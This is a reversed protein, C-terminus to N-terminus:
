FTLVINERLFILKFVVEQGFFRAVAQSYFKQQNFYRQKWFELKDHEFPTTKYDAVVIRGDVKYIIDIVGYITRTSEELVFPVERGLIESSKIESFIKSALFGTLLKGVEQLITSSVKGRLRRLIGDLEQPNVKGLDVRALIEHCLLGAQKQDEFFLVEEPFFEVKEIVRGEELKDLRSPSTLVEEALFKEYREQRGKWIRHLREPDIKPFAKEQSRIEQSVPLADRSSTIRVNFRAGDIRSPKEELNPIAEKLMAYFSDKDVKQRKIGCLLVGQKARTIAVYFLRRYEARLKRKEKERLSLYEMSKSRRFSMGIQNRVWDYIFTRERREGPSGEINPIIVFPFELGKSRHISMVQVVDMTQDFLSYEEEERELLIRERLEEAFYKLSAGEQSFKEALQILKQINALPQQTPYFLATIELLSFEELILKIIESLTTSRSKEHLRRLKEFIGEGTPNIRCYNFTGFRRRLEYIQRDDLGGYPSRLFGLGSIEDYPNAVFSILNVFDIVEQTNYFYKEGEVIYPISERGLAELYTEIETLRRALIAIDRFSVSGKSAYLLERIWRAIFEAELERAQDKSVGDFLVIQV